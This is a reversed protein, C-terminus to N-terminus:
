CDKEKGSQKGVEEMSPGGETYTLKQDQRRGKGIKKTAPEKLLGGVETGIRKRTPEPGLKKKRGRKFIEKRGSVEARSSDRLPV